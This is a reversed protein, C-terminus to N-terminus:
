ESINKSTGYQTLLKENKRVVSICERVIVETLKETYINIWSIDKADIEVLDYHADDALDTAVAALKKINKNMENRTTTLGLAL